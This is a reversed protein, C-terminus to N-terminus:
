GYRIITYEGTVENKILSNGELMEEFPSIQDLLTDQKYKDHQYITSITKKVVDLYIGCM